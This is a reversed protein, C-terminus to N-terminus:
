TINVIINIVFMASVNSLIDLKVPTQPYTGWYPTKLPVLEGSYDL